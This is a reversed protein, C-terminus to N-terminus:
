DKLCRVTFGLARNVGSMNANSSGFVLSRSNTGSVTSSWYDGDAGVGDLSGNSVLRYGALTWKLPSAFAGVSTNVSWSLREANIETETPIRYGIPCPNNVGNVGQWLNANQPSRWDYPANPALIFNGHAPQDISSLTATTPSTRCQHGDAPRGWQYLDGYSNVDTSSTAVQSAGLNRDMWISGTTPNTVDVVTTAGACHVTGAPYQGIATGVSLTFSCSQGGVTIAFSATGSTTPTGSITYTLSGAGNALTGASLTATLGVVGTSSITQAAYSGGNGATYPVSVSVGSAVSGNYLNGTLTASGCNLTGVAAPIASADKLCRVTCGGARLGDSMLAGSSDFYLYRSASGSVTSSWCSGGAGVGNLSGNSASRGGALTWKLPSAFGGVSNNQSWSAREANIETETPIRYGSPCPNNVGNVGQWLNANQPSRWDNPAGSALIFNGNAPQDISSLTATTPSTRCQHGDAPRGWQYLDGYSNVDTSSTAVQTAGLNRDMWIRGTTPNTVDVVTTAGACNVTGAPYQPQAAGVSVTFSCSQGGVTIAFSATGSTTPTGTITYTLSGAGNALTGASLTATLGAVGTSAVSQAGYTGANGGTYSIATSVGSAATGNTLTGTTTAGGCNLTTLTASPTNNGCGDYWITGNWWQLCNVTTNYITLGAAPSAIANRQTATMRPPLFGQTTSEVDLKASTNPSVTGIGVEAGNNFINSNNVVWQSGNWYTTNGAVSGSTLLGTAGQIGQAGAPGTAGVAGNTGNTGAIGQAGNAGAPGTLGTPGTAGVAGNTGNTGSAGSPGAAGTAGTLGTPGAVGQIGQAGTAGAPGTLGTPGIPGTAGVAGNTGNTGSAGSPGTLGQIGQAGTAGTPGTLGIPGQPGAPGTLGTAGTSGTAGQAGTAGIPGPLGQIGASGNAGQPGTPGTLGTAGTLGQNGQAGSSGTLGNCVFTTLLANVEAADLIGNNNADLGSEVKVGGTLCNAGAPELTTKVLANQGNLGNSGAAGIPGTLGQIGQPGPVGPAGQIGQAGNTGAAGSPGAVGQIGQAGTAGTAGAAGAPGTINGTLLWTTPNTKYYVNGDTMNLYFDGLTGLVAAPVTTGYRWQNLQNGSNKAYLAYPVSMLQQSGYDLYNTGNTFSVGLSVFYPGTAWNITSFNGGLLTGQGIVLNVVGLPSTTVSHREQFVITGSASTQKIQIRIAITTNAVLTNSFNRIVAQYNIGDPAQAYSKTSVLMCCVTIILISIFRNLSYFSKM